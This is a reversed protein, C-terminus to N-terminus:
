REPERDGARIRLGVFRKVVCLVRRMGSADGAPM